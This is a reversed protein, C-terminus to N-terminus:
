KALLVPTDHEAIGQLGIQVCGLKYAGEISEGAGLAQYFGVAFAIAAKDGIAKNMGIVYPIHKVISKAQAESFCANLLVCNVQNSFHEFLVTLAEPKILQTQGTHNEFCLAGSATGHGSFHVINPRADLMAQSIDEARASLQPRELQFRDRLKAQRLKEHIERYEEGLRLRSADTPDAALFLISLKANHRDANLGDVRAQKSDPIPMKPSVSDSSSGGRKGNSPLETARTVSPESHFAVFNHASYTGVCTSKKGPVVGCRSCHAAGASAVFSHASYTGVCTTKTGPVTGCRECYAAGNNAIFNHAAYTGVCTSKEGPVAGCRSCHATGTRAVFSHASYTGVCTTKTGPITGCRECYTLQQDM